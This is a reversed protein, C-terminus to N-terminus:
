PLVILRCATTHRPCIDQAQARVYLLLFWRSLEKRCIKRSIFLASVSHEGLDLAMLHLNLIEEDVCRQYIKKKLTGVVLIQLTVFNTKATVRQFERKEDV